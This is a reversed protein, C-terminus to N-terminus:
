LFTRFDLEEATTSSQVISIINRADGELDLAKITDVIEPISIQGSHDADFL